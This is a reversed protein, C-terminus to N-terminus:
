KEWLLCYFGIGGGAMGLDYWFSPSPGFRSCLVVAVGIMIIDVVKSARM